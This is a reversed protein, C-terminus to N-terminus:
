QSVYWAREHLPIQEKAPQGVSEFHDKRWAYETRKRWTACCAGESEDPENLEIVLHGNGLYVRHLGGDTRTGTEFAAILAPAGNRVTYLYIFEWHGTGGGSYSLVVIADQVYDNNVDGYQIGQLSLHPCGPGCQESVFEHVGDRLSVVGNLKPLWGFNEPVESTRWPYAFDRFDVQRIDTLAPKKQAAVFLACGVIALPISIARMTM